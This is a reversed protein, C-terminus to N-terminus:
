WLNVNIFLAHWLSEPSIFITNTSLLFWSNHTKSYDAFIQARNRLDKESAMNLMFYSLFYLLYLCSTKVAANLVHTHGLLGTIIVTDQISAKCSPQWYAKESTAFQM